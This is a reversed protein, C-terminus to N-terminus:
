EDEGEMPKGSNDNSFEKNNKVFWMTRVMTNLHGISTILPLIGKQYLQLFKEDKKQGGKILRYIAYMLLVNCILNILFGGVALFYIIGGTEYVKSLFKIVEVFLKTM